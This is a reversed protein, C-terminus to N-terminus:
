QLNPLRAGNHRGWQHDTPQRNKTSRSAPQPTQVQNLSKSESSDQQAAAPRLRKTLPSRRRSITPHRPRRQETLEELPAISERKSGQKCPCPTAPQLAQDDQQQSRLRPAVDRLSEQEKELRHEFESSLASEVTSVSLNYVCRQSVWQEVRVRDQKMMSKYRGDIELMYVIFQEDLQSELTSVVSDNTSSM